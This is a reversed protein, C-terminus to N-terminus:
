ENSGKAGQGRSWAGHGMGWAWNQRQILCFSSKCLGAPFNPSTKVVNAHKPSHYASIIPLMSHTISIIFRTGRVAKLFGGVACGTGRVTGRTKLQRVTGLSRGV